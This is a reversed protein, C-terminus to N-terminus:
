CETQGCAPLADQRTAEVLLTYGRDRPAFLNAVASLCRGITVLWVRILLAGVPHTREATYSLKILAFGFSSRVLYRYRELKFGCDRMLVDITQHTYFQRVAHREKHVTRWADDVADLSLSDLTLLLRGQPRLARWIERLTEKDNPLHEFVCLSMVTDFQGTRVPLQTADGCFYGTEPLKHSEVARALQRRNLDFGIIWAGALGIRYNYTGEGCGIDLIREGKKPKLWRLAPVTEMVRRFNFDKRM